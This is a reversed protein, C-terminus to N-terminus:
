INGKLYELMKKTEYVPSKNNTVLYDVVSTAVKIVMNDLSLKIIINRYDESIFTRDLSIYDAIYVIKGTDSLNWWGTSHYKVADLIELDTINFEKQLFIAGAPGHFLFPLQLFDDSLNTCNKIMELLKDEKFERVIDHSLGALFAKYKNCGIKKSLVWSMKAVEISHKYRKETLHNKIYFNIKKINEIYDM